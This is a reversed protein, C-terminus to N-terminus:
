CLISWFWDVDSWGCESGVALIIELRRYCRRKDAGSESRMVVKGEM